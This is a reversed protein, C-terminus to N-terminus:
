TQRALATASAPRSTGAHIPPRGELDRIGPILLAAVTAVTGVVAAAVLTPRAGVLGAVPATLAFSVPLLGISILWDLSSVRGLLSLPVHRQKITAWLITGAAELANFVCCVIMLQLTSRALGYGAVALTALAWCAYMFTVDRRPHRRQAMLAAAGIAGAGGAAFVMGLDGASGHLDNKLVYPLLTETPGLFALYAIAASALTGWLWANRRVFSLGDAITQLPSVGAPRRSAPSRNMSLVAVTSVGFTVADVAFATGGGLSAVLWGGLTPGILRLALPRVFQDLANAQSLEKADVIEPVISEFAPTFFATGAGYLAVIGALEVFTLEHTLSLAALAAVAAGRVVDSWVMVLRRDFRDSVVGGALLCVITPVTMAIGLLSLAAPANWLQYAVWTMAILFIGDGVLSVTMGVWLRRFDRSRLPRLLGVRAFGGPRDLGEFSHQM